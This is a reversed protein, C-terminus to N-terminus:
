RACCWGALTPFRTSRFEETINSVASLRGGAGVFVWQDADRLAILLWRGDPSWALASFAGAGAFARGVRGNQLVLVESQSARRLSVAVAGGGPSVAMATARWGAPLRRAAIPRARPGLVRLEHRELAFLQRGDGSWGLQIPKMGRPSVGLLARTDTAWIRVRGDTHAVALVGVRGPQWAPAVPLFQKAVWHDHTGNGAVVRLAPLLRPPRTFYAIRTDTRTGGWQPLSVGPRALTWHVVGDPELAALRNRSSGVVFRGHPSWAAQRYGRLLRKSGDRHVVWVGASSEVLLRGPAPLSFLAPASREIRTPAIAKRIRGLVARGPPSLAAAIVAGLVALVIVPRVFSRQRPVPEREAFATRVVAWARREAGAEDPPPVSQLRRRLVSSM